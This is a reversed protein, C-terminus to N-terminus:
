GLTLTVEVWGAGAHTQMRFGSRQLLHMMHENTGLVTACLRELGSDKAIISLHKLLLTGVGIGQYIDDVTLGIEAAKPDSPDVIYRGVGIPRAHEGQLLGVGIAVHNVFDLETFYVLEQDSFSRKAGFFRSYTSEESLRSLATELALKDDPQIARVVVVSGDRLTENTSYKCIQM